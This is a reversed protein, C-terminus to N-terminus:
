IMQLIHGFVWKEWLMGKGKRSIMLTNTALTFATPKGVSIAPIWEGQHSPALLNYQDLLMERLDKRHNLM